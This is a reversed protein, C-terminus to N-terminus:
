EAEAELEAALKRITACLEADSIHADAPSRWEVSSERGGEVLAALEVSLRALEGDALQSV